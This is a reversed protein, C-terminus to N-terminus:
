SKRKQNEEEVVQKTAEEIFEEPKAPTGSYHQNKLTAMRAAREAMKKGSDNVPKETQFPKNEAM